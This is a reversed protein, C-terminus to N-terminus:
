SYVFKLSQLIKKHHFHTIGWTQDRAQWCSCRFPSICIRAEYGLGVSDSPRQTAGLLQPKILKGLSESLCSLNSSWLGSDVSVFQIQSFINTLFTVNLPHSSEYAAFANQLNIPFAFLIIVVKLYHYFKLKNGGRFRTQFVFRLVTSM